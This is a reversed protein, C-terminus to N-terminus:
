GGIFFSYSFKAYYLVSDMTTYRNSLYLNKFSYRCIGVVQWLM